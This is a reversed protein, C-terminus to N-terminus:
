LAVVSLAVASSLCHTLAELPGVDCPCNGMGGSEGQAQLVGNQAWANGRGHHVAGPAIRELAMHGNSAVAFLHEVIDGAAVVEAEQVAEKM